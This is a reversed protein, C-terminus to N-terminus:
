ATPIRVIWRVRRNPVSSARPSDPGTASKNELPPSGAGEEQWMRAQKGCRAEKEKKKM